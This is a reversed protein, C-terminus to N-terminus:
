INLAIDSVNNQIVILSFELLGLPQLFYFLCNGPPYLHKERMYDELLNLLLIQLSFTHVPLMDRM